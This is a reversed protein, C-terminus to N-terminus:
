YHKLSYICALLGLVGQLIMFVILATKIPKIEDLDDSGDCPDSVHGYAVFFKIIFVISVIGLIQQFEFITTDCSRLLEGLTFFRGTM